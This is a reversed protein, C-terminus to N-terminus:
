TQGYWRAAMYSQGFRKAEEYIMQFHYGGRTGFEYSKQPSSVLDHM